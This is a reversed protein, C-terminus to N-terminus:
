GNNLLHRATVLLNSTLISSWVYSKFSPLSRWNCTDLGFARKLFSIIGEIGARFHRLTRYVWSSSAMDSIPIGRSKSFVVDSAGADKIDALNQKSSFGGDFVIQHPAEGTIEILRKVTDIALTSDAPNGDLVTCDFVLSSSGATLCIKHGYLTERADKRIIDTHDEFISVLKEKAPVSEGKLIRRRTQDVVRGSRDHFCKLKAILQPARPDDSEALVALAM